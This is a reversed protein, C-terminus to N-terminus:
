ISFTDKIINHCKAILQGFKLINWFNLFWQLWEGVLFHFAHWFYFARKVQSNGKWVQWSQCGQRPSQRWDQCQCWWSDRGHCETHSQACSFCWGSVTLKMIDFHLIEFNLFWHHPGSLVTWSHNGQALPRLVSKWLWSTYQNMYWYM